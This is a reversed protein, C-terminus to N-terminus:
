NLKTIARTVAYLEEKRVQSQFALETQVQIGEELRETMLHVRKDLGEAKNRTAELENQLMVILLTLVVVSNQISKNQCQTYSEIRKIKKNNNITGSAIYHGRQYTGEDQAHGSGNLM